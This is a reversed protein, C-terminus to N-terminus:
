TQASSGARHGIDTGKWGKACAAAALCSQVATFITFILHIEARVPQDSSVMGQGRVPVPATVSSQCVYASRLSKCGTTQPGLPDTSQKKAVWSRQVLSAFQPDLVATHAPQVGGSSVGWPVVFRSSASLQQSSTSLLAGEASPPQIPSSLQWFFGSCGDASCPV